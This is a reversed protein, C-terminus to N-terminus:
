VGEKFTLILHHYPDVVAMQNPLIIVTSDVQEIIAPGYIQHGNGLKARDYIPCSTFGNVEKFYVPRTEKLAEELPLSTEPYSPFDITPVKGIGTVRYNVVEVPEGDARHGHMKEHIEDFITRLQRLEENTITQGPAPVSIEYGQGAYRMDLQFVLDIESEQFGENTLDRISEAALDGLFSSVTEGDLETLPALRSRVYDHKVDAILLGLASTVGPITPIIVRPINLNQAVRGAHLPGAGGFAILSFEQLDFGRKSSIGKIAEEMKANVIDLIGNAAEYVHIGLSAAIKEELVEVARETNIVVYGGLANNPHLYGLAVNADTITPETGGRGYSAPGPVAGASDPGVILAGFPDVRAITGGGASVTSIDLMPVAIDRGKIKSRTTVSAASDKILAVDCSTGGMDFTILDRYGALSGIFLSAVIGGAPGSLVTTVSKTAAGEFTTVGGNSQMIYRQPITISMTEMVGSLRHIYRSLIPNLYANIVTSSLRPYERIQPLIESSLSVDCEPFEENFIRKVMLEHSPNIFSFLLNVAVSHIGKKKLRRAIGRVSEEAPETLAEGKFNLREKVEETNRELVLMQPKEYFLNFTEPGYERAQEGVEYIGRFGETVILGTKVGKEELLANTGVTTGHSFFSIDQFDVGRDNLVRLGNVIAESPDHPTSPIKIIEIKSTEEDFCVFDSFTGGTDVTIRYHKNRESIKSM